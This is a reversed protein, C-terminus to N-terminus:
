PKRRLPTQGQNKVNPADDELVVVPENRFDNVHFFGEDSADKCLFLGMWVDLWSCSTRSNLLMFQSQPRSEYKITNQLEGLTM